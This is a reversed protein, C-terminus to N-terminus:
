ALEHRIEEIRGKWVPQWDSGDLWAVEGALPVRMGNRQVHDAFRGLWPVKRYGERTRMWRGACYVSCIENDANFRFELSVRIGELAVSALASEDDLASWCVGSSPLLATPSWVAEALYRHLQAEDLEPHGHDTAVRLASFLHLEGSGRGDIFRDCIQLSIWPLMRVRAIWLFGRTLPAIVQEADFSLWRPNSTSTRLTGRQLLRTLRIRRQGDVLAHRFYRQVIEPLAALESFDVPEQPGVSTSELKLEADQIARKAKGRLLSLAVRIGSFALVLVVILWPISDPM